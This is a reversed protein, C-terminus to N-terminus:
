RELEPVTQSFNDIVAAYDVIESTGSDAEQQAIEEYGMSSIIHAASSHNSTQESISGVELTQKINLVDKSIPDDRHGEGHRDTTPRTGDMHSDMPVTRPVSNSSDVGSQAQRTMDHQEVPSNGLIAVRSDSECVIIRKSSSEPQRQRDQDDLSPSIGEQNGLQVNNVESELATFVRTAGPTEEDRISPPNGCPPLSTFEKPFVVAIGTERERRMQQLIDRTHRTRLKTRERERKNKEVLAKWGGNTSVLTMGGLKISEDTNGKREPGHGSQPDHDQDLLTSSDTMEIDSSGTIRECRGNGSATMDRRASDRHSIEKLRSTPRHRKSTHNQEDAPTERPRKRGHVEKLPSSAPQRSSLDEGRTIGQDVMDETTSIPSNNLISTPMIGQRDDTCRSASEISKDEELLNEDLSIMSQMFGDQKEAHKARNKRDGSEMSVTGLQATSFLTMNERTPENQFSTSVGDEATFSFPGPFAIFSESEGRETTPGALAEANTSEEFRPHKNKYGEHSMKRPRKQGRGEGPQSSASQDPTSTKLPHDAAGSEEGACYDSAPEGSDICSVPSQHQSLNREDVTCSPDVHVPASDKDSILLCHPSTPVLGGSIHEKDLSSSCGKETVEQGHSKSQPTTMRVAELGYERNDMLDNTPHDDHWSRNAQHAASDFCQATEPNTVGAAGNHENGQLHYTDFDQTKESDNHDSRGKGNESQNSDMGNTELLELRRHPEEGSVEDAIADPHQRLGHDRVRALLREEVAGDERRVKQGAPSDLQDQQMIDDSDALTKGEVATRCGIRCSLQDDEGHVNESDQMSGQPQSYTAQTVDSNEMVNAEGNKAPVIMTRERESTTHNSGSSPSGLFDNESELSSAPQIRFDEEEGLATGTSLPPSVQLVIIDTVKSPEALPRGALNAAADLTYIHSGDQSERTPTVATSVFGGSAESSDFDTDDDKSKAATNSTRDDGSIHDSHQLLYQTCEPGESQGQRDSDASSQIFTSETGLIRQKRVSLRAKRAQRAKDLLKKIRAADKGPRPTINGGHSGFKSRTSCIRTKALSSRLGSNATYTRRGGRPCSKQPSCRSRISGSRYGSEVCRTSRADHSTFTSEPSSAALSAPENIMSAVDGDPALKRGSPEPGPIGYGLHDTDEESVLYLARSDPGTETEVFTILSHDDNPSYSVTSVAHGVNRGSWGQIYAERTADSTYLSVQTNEPAGAMNRRQQCGKAVELRKNNNGLDKKHDLTNNSTDTAQSDVLASRLAQLDKRLSRMEGNTIIVSDQITSITSVIAKTQSEIATLVVTQQDHPGCSNEGFDHKM